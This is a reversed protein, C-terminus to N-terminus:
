KVRFSITLYPIPSPMTVTRECWITHTVGCWRLLVGIESVTGLPFPQGWRTLAGIASMTGGEEEGVGAM